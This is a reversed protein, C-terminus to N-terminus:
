KLMRLGVSLKNKQATYELKSRRGEEEISKGGNGKDSTSEAGTRGDRKNYLRDNQNSGFEKYRNRYDNEDYDGFGGEEPDLVRGRM